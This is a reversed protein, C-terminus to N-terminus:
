DGRKAITKLSADISMLATAIDQLEEVLAAVSAATAAPALRADRELIGAKDVDRAISRIRAQNDLGSFYM